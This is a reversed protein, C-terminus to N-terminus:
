WQWEQFSSRPRQWPWEQWAQWCKEHRHNSLCDIAKTPKHPYQDNDLSYQSALDHLVEGYKAQNSNCLILFACWQEYAEKKMADKEPDTTLEQYEVTHEVFGDLFRDGLMTKLVSFADKREKYFDTLDQGELQRYNLVKAFADTMTAFPYRAQMPNQMLVQIAELLKIPDNKFCDSHLLWYCCLM